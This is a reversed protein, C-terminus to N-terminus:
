KRWGSVLFKQVDNNDLYGTHAGYPEEFVWFWTKRNSVLVNAVNVKDSAYQDPLLGYSLLDNPDTFAVVSLSTLHKNGSQPKWNKLIDSLSDNEGMAGPAKITVGKDALGLMPLQNAGMFIIGLQNVATQALVKMESGDKQKLMHQLADYLIKSGLSESIFIVTSNNDNASPQLVSKLSQVMKELIVDHSKAGEYILADVLCDDMLSNKIEGNFRARQPKCTREEASQSGCDSYPGTKDYDLDKKLQSTLPSWVIASFQYDSGSLHLKQSITQIESAPPQADPVPKPAIYSSDIQHAIAAIQNHAWTTDHTCMGHVLLINIPGPAGKKAIESIGPFSHSDGVVVPPRYPTSCGTLLIWYALTLIKGLRRM